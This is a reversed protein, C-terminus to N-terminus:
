VKVLLQPVAVVVVGIATLGAALAPVMVPAPGTHTPAVMVSASAVVPPVQVEELVATAETLVDPTTAPM